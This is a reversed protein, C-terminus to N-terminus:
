NANSNEFTSAATLDYTGAPLNITTGPHANAFDIAGRLSCDNAGGACVSTHSDDNRNVTIASQGTSILSPTVQGARLVVLDRHGNVKKPMALVSSPSGDVSMTVASNAESSLNARNRQDGSPRVLNIKNGTQDIVLLDSM